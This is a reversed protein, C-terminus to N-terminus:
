GICSSSSLETVGGLPTSCHPLFGFVDETQPSSKTKQQIENCSLRGLLSRGTLESAKWRSVAAGLQYAAQLKEGRCWDCFDSKMLEWETCLRQVSVCVCLFPFLTHDSLMEWQLHKQLSLVAEALVSQCSFSSAIILAYTGACWICSCTTHQHAALRRAVWPAILALLGCFAVVAVLMLSPSLSHMLWTRVAGRQCEFRLQLVM